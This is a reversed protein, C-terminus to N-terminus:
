AKRRACACAEPAPMDSRCCWPPAAPAARSGRDRGDVGRMTRADMGAAAASLDGVDAAGTDSAKRRTAPATGHLPLCVLYVAHVGYYLSGVMGASRLAPNLATNLAGELLLKAAEMARSSACRTVAIAVGGLIAAVGLAAIGSFLLPRSLATRTALGTITSAAGAGLLIGLVLTWWSRNRVSSSVLLFGEGLACNLRSVAAVIADSSTGATALEVSLIDLPWASAVIGISTKSNRSGSIPGCSAYVVAFENRAGVTTAEQQIAAGLNPAAM